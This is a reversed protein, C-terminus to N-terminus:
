KKAKRRARRRKRRKQGRKARRWAKAGAARSRRMEREALLGAVSYPQELGVQYPQPVGNRESGGVEVIRLLQDEGPGWDPVRMVGGPLMRYPQRGPTRVVSVGGAFRRRSYAGSLAQAAIAPLPSDKPQPDLDPLEEDPLIRPNGGDLSRRAGALPDPDADVIVERDIGAVDQFPLVVRNYRPREELDDLNADRSLSVDWVEEWSGSEVVPGNGADHLVRTFRDGILDMLDWGEMWGGTLDLPLVNTNVQAVLSPDYGVLRAIDAIAEDLYMVDWSGARGQNTARGNVRVDFLRYRNTSNVTTDAHVRLSIVVGDREADFTRRWEGADVQLLAGVQVRGGTPGNFREVVFRYDGTNGAHLTRGAVATIGGPSGQVWAVLPRQRGALYSEDKPTRWFLAKERAEADIADHGSFNHPDSTGDQWLGGIEYTQGLWRGVTEELDAIYGRANLVAVGDIVVPRQPVFGEWIPPGGDVFGRLISEQEVRRADKESLLGGATAYGRRSASWSPDQLRVPRDDITWHTRSVEGKRPKPRPRFTGPPPLPPAVTGADMLVAPSDLLVAPDDFLVAM